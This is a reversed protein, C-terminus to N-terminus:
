NVACMASPRSQERHSEFAAGNKKALAASCAHFAEKKGWERTTKTWDSLKQLEARLDINTYAREWSDFDRQSIHMAGAQHYITFGSFGRQPPPGDKPGVTNEEEPPSPVPSPSPSPLPANGNADDPLATPMGDAHEGCAKRMRDKEWRMRAADQAAAKRSPSKIVYAQHEEWDHLRYTGDDMLELFGSQLMADVFKKADGDWGAELAIDIEDMGSLVGSPHNMATSIWLDLLCDTSGAGLLMRLRKRKRHGLFSVAIRIDTNM